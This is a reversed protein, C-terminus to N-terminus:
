DQATSAAESFLPQEEQMIRLWRNQEIIVNQLHTKVNGQLKSFFHLHRYSRKMAEIASSIKQNYKEERRKLM